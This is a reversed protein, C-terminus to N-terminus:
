VKEFFVQSAIKPAYSEGFDTQKFEMQTLSLKEIRLM